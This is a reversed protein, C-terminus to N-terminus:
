VGGAGLMCADCHGIFTPNGPVLEKVHTPEKNAAKLLTRFDRLADAVLKYKKFSIWKDKRGLVM